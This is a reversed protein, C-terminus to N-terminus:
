IVTYKFWSSSSLGAKPNIYYMGSHTTPHIILLASCSAPSQLRDVRKVIDIFMIIKQKNQFSNFEFNIGSVRVGLVIRTGDPYIYHHQPAKFLTLTAVSSFGEPNLHYM